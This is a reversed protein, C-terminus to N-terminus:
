NYANFINFFADTPCLPSTSCVLDSCNTIALILDGKIALSDINTLAGGIAAIDLNSDVIVNKIESSAKASPTIVPAVTKSSAMKKKHCATFLTVTLLIIITFYKRM